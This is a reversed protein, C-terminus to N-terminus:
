QGILSRLMSRRGRASMSQADVLNAPPAGIIMPANADHLRLVFGFEKEQGSEDRVARYALQEQYLYGDSQGIFLDLKVARLDGPLADAAVHYQYQTTAIGDLSVDGVRVLTAHTRPSFAAVPDGRPYFDEPPNYPRTTWRTEANARMYVRGGVGIEESLSTGDLSQIVLHYRVDQPTAGAIFEIRGVAFTEGNVTMALFVRGSAPWQPEPISSVIEAARVPRAILLVVVFVLSLARSM